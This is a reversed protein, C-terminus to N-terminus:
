MGLMRANVLGAIFDRYKEIDSHFQLGVEYDPVKLVVFAVVCIAKLDCRIEGNIAKCEFLVKEGKKMAVSCAIGVGGLSINRVTVPMIQRKTNQVRGNWQCAVRTYKRGSPLTPEVFVPKGLM